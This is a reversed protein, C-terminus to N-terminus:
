GFLLHGGSTPSNAMFTSDEGPITERLLRSQNRYLEILPQADEQLQAFYAKAQANVVNFTLQRLSNKFEAAEGDTLTAAIKERQLISTSMEGEFNSLFDLGNMTRPEKRKWCWCKLRQRQQEEGWHTEIRFAVGVAAASASSSSSSLMSDRTALTTATGGATGATAAGSDRERRQQQQSQCRRKGNTATGMPMEKAHAMMINDMLQLQQRPPSVEGCWDFSDCVRVSVKRFNQKQVKGDGGGCGSANLVFQNPKINIQDGPIAKGFRNTAVLKVYGPRQGQNEFELWFHNPDDPRLVIAQSSAAKKAIGDEYNSASLGVCASGGHGILQFSKKFHECNTRELVLHAFNTEVKTPQYQVAIECQGGPEMIPATVEVIKFNPQTEGREDTIECKLRMQMTDVNWVKLRLTLCDGIPVCYFNLKDKGREFALKSRSSSALDMESASSVPRSNRPEDFKPMKRYAAVLEATTATDRCSSLPMDDRVFRKNLIDLTQQDRLAAADLAAPAKAKMRKQLENELFNCVRDKESINLAQKDMMQSVLSDRSTKGELDLHIASQDFVPRGVDEGSKPTSHKPPDPQQSPISLLQDASSCSTYNLLDCHDNM